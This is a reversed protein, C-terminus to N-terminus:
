GHEPAEGPARALPANICLLSPEESTFWERALEIRGRQRTVAVATEFFCRGDTM